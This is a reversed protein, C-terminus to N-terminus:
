KITREFHKDQEVETTDEMWDEFDESMQALDVVFRLEVVVL